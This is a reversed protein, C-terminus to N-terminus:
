INKFQENILQNLEKLYEDDALFEVTNMTELQYYDNDALIVGECIMCGYAGDSLRVSLNYIKVKEQITYLAALPQFSGDEMAVKCGLNMDAAMIMGCDTLVYHNSTLLLRHGNVTEICYMEEETGTWTNVVSGILNDASSRVKDGIAINEIARLSGDAMRVQTGEAVCGIQMIMNRIKRCSYGMGNDLFSSLFLVDPKKHTQQYFSLIYSLNVKTSARYYKSKLKANWEEEFLWQFLGNHWGVRVGSENAYKVAGCGFDMIAYSDSEIFGSISAETYLSIKGNCPLKVIVREESPIYSKEFVYDVDKENISTPYRNYFSRISLGDPKTDPTDINKKPNEILARNAFPPNINLTCKVETYSLLKGTFVTLPMFIVTIPSDTKLRLESYELKGSYFQGIREPRITDQKVLMDNQFVKIIFNALTVTDCYSAVYHITLKKLAYDYYIGPMYIANMLELTPATQELITKDNLLEGIENKQKINHICNYVLPYKVKLNEEGGLMEMLSSYDEQIALNLTKCSITSVVNNKEKMTVIKKTQIIYKNGPIVKLRM